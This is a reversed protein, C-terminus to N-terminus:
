PLFIRLCLGALLMPMGGVDLAIAEGRDGNWGGIYTGYLLKSGDSSLKVVVVDGGLFADDGGSFVTNFAGATTPFDSSRTSGAVVASGSSDVAIGYGYDSSSGGAFTSYVPMSGSTTMKVVFMDPCPYTNPSYGCTGGGIVRDFAGTTTPFDASETRGTVYANGASDVAIGDAYDWNSGGLFTAYALASGSNNFKAVFADDCPTGFCTGGGFTTDFAGSTAPFDSSETEGSVFVNGSGDVGIANATDWNSGGLFTAYILASGSSNLKAVFADSCPYYADCAWGGGFTTDFAGATAPFSASRTGGAVYANGAADVAIGDAWEPGDSGLLTSYILASGSANLKTVFADDDGGYTRSFAGPTTPFDTSDTYGTLFAQGSGDVAIGYDFDWGNGGIYTSYVLASGAPNLKTVFMDYYGGNHSPQFAGPTTPFDTSLTRGFVYAAGTSDVAISTQRYSSTNADMGSGGLFTAYLLNSAGSQPSVSPTEAQSDAFPSTVQSGTLAPNSSKVSSTGSLQLLPLTYEGVTTRLRLLNGDLAMGDAGDVRLQVADLDAGVRAVLRQVMQGNEGSIELDIGPYLDRYRVGGWVPVDAYWGAPDSGTFYSVHTELRNFPEMVPHPNSDPFTLKLNVGKRPGAEIRVDSRGPSSLSFGVEGLTSTPPEASSSKELVTVWLADESLWITGNGGRVQFRAASGQELSASPGFQGANEIFMVPSSNLSTSISPGRFQMGDPAAPVRTTDGTAAMASNGVMSLLILCTGLGALFKTYRRTNM